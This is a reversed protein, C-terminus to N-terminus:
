FSLLVLIALPSFQVFAQLIFIVACLTQINEIFM